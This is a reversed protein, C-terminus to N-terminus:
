GQLQLTTTSAIARFGPEQLSDRRGEERGRSGEMSLDLAVSYKILKQCQQASQM